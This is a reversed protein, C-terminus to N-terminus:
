LSDPRVRLGSKASQEIAAIIQHVKVADDFGPACRTGHRLDEAMAQYVRRVNGVVPGDCADDAHGEPLELAALSRDDGRGGELQLPVLQAHGSLGRVRLDAESGNFDWVLGAGHAMGGRYHVSIPAGSELMGAFLVQDEATMPVIEGTEVMMASKRRGATVASLEAIPGLLDVLAALLHGLPITLTSAGTRRDLVYANAQEIVPGWTMGTGVVTTSYLDGLYGAALLDRVHLITPAFRAQTGAVAVVGRQRALTAMARAEDLGNGLPWECYVHKGADLAATVIAHHHPVKLTVAAIDVDPSAVLEAVSDFARPIGLADAAAAASARSSNAVGVIEFHESLARLAPVHAAAGWSRGPQVGAIGVRHRPGTM